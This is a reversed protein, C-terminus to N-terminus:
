APFARAATSSVTALAPRTPILLTPIGLSQNMAALEQEHRVDGPNRVGRVIVDVNHRHCFDATLGRWASVSVNGWGAPLAARVAAARAEGERAPNKAANVAVLVVLDDFLHRAREVVDLHGATLPDFTGPFVARSM